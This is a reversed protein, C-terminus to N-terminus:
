PDGYESIAKLGHALQEKLDELTELLQNDLCQERIEVWIQEVLNPEPSYPPQEIFAINEPM